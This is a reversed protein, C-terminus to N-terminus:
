GRTLLVTCSLRSNYQDKTINITYESRTWQGSSVMNWVPDQDRYYQSVSLKSDVTGGSEQLRIILQFNDFGVM